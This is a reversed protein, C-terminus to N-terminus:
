WLVNTGQKMHLILQYPQCRMLVEQVREFIRVDNWEDEFPWRKRPDEEEEDESVDSDSIEQLSPLDDLEENTENSGEEFFEDASIVPDLETTDERRSVAEVASLSTGPDNLGEQRSRSPEPYDPAEHPHCGCTKEEDAVRKSYLKQHTDYYTYEFHGRQALYLRYWSVLDFDCDELWIKQVETHIELDVDNIVYKVM